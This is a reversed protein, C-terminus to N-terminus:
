KQTGWKHHFSEVKISVQAFEWRLFILLFHSNVPNTNNEQKDIQTTNKVQVHNPRLHEHFKWGPPKICLSTRRPQLSHRATEKNSTNAAQSSEKQAKHVQRIESNSSVFLVIFCLKPCICSPQWSMPENGDDFKPKQSDAPGAGGVLVKRNTGFSRGVRHWDGASIRNM